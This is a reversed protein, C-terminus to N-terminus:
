DHYLYGVLRLAQLVSNFAVEVGLADGVLVSPDSTPEGIHVLVKFTDFSGVTLLFGDDDLLRDCCSPIAWASVDEDLEAVIHVFGKLYLGDSTDATHGFRLVVFAVKEIAAIEVGEVFLEGCAHFHRKTFTREISTSQEQFVFVFADSKLAFM